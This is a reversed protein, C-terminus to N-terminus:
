EQVLTDDNILKLKLKIKKYKLNKYNFSNNTSLFSQSKPEIPCINFDFPFSETDLESFQMVNLLQNQGIAECINAQLISLPKEKNSFNYTYYILVEPKKPEIWFTKTKKEKILIDGENSNEWSRKLGEQDLLMVEYYYSQQQLSELFSDFSQSTKVLYITDQFEESYVCWKGAKSQTSKIQFLEKKMASSVNQIDYDNIQNKMMKVFEENAGYTERDFKIPFSYLTDFNNPYYINEIQGLKWDEYNNLLTTDTFYKKTKALFSDREKSNLKYWNVLNSNESIQDLTLSLSIINKDGYKKIFHVWCSNESIEILLTHVNRIDFYYPKKKRILSGEVAADYAIKLDERFLNELDQYCDDAILSDYFSEFSQHTKELLIPYNPYISDDSCTSHIILKSELDFRLMSDKSIGYENLLDEDYAGAYFNDQIKHPISNVNKILISVLSNPDNYNFYKANEGKNEIIAFNQSYGLTYVFFSLLVLKINM